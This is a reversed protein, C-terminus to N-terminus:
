TGANQQKNNVSSLSHMRVFMRIGRWIDFFSLFCLWRTTDWCTWSATRYMASLLLNVILSAASYRILSPKKPNNLSSVFHLFFTYQLTQLPSKWTRFYAEVFTEGVPSVFAVLLAPQKSRIWQNAPSLVSLMVNLVLGSLNALSNLSTTGPAYRFIVVWSIRSM